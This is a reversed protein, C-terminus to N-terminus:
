GWDPIVCFINDRRDTVKGWIEAMCVGATVAERVLVDLKCEM